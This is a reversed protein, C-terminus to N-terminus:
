DGLTKVSDPNGNSWSTGDWTTSNTCQSYGNYVFLMLLISATRLLLFNTKKIKM